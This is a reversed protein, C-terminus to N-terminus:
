GAAYLNERCRSVAMSLARAADIKLKESRKVMRLRKDEPDVKRDANHLHEALIDEGGHAVQKNFILDLLERDAGQVEKGQSFEAAWIGEDMLLRAAYRLETPDYCFQILNYEKALRRLERMPGPSEENGDFDIQQGPVSQWTQVYRIAVDGKDARAPDPHMTVGVLAFCDSPSDKRGTAADGAVILPERAHLAPLDEKLRAWLEMNPLYSEGGTSQFAELDSEPYEQRDLATSLAERAVQARWEDTRTPRARWSLFIAKFNNLLNKADNWLSHFLNDEGNATSIIFLQGGGDITPKLATYIERGWAMFAFEDLIALSCTFSRGAGKTAARSIVRSNNGWELEGENDTTLKRIERMWEPLRTYMIRFRRVLEYADDETKSFLLVVRGARTLCLWLGYACALWTVGIQRAKLFIILKDSLMRALAEVQAPWLKFPVTVIGLSAEGVSHPEDIVVHENIFHYSSKECASWEAERGVAGALQRREVLREAAQLQIQNALM